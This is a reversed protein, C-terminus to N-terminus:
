SETKAQIAPRNIITELLLIVTVLYAGAYFRDSPDPFLLLRLVCSILISCALCYVPPQQRFANRMTILILLPM